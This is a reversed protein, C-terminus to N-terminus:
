VRAVGIEVRKEGKRNNTTGDNSKENPTAFALARKKLGVTWKIGTALLGIVSAFKPTRITPRRFGLMKNRETRTAHTLPSSM